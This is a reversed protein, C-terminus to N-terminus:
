KYIKNEILINIIRMGDLEYIPLLNVFGIILNIIAFDNTWFLSLGAVIFSTAPGAILIKLLKNNDIKSQNKLKCSFGFPLIKFISIREKLIFIMVIHGCEHIFLALFCLLLEKLKNTIICWLLILLLYPSILIYTNFLKIKM